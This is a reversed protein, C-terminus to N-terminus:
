NSNREYMTRWNTFNLVIRSLYILLPYSALFSQLSKITINQWYEPNEHRRQLEWGPLCDGGVLAPAIIGIMVAMITNNNASAYSPVPTIAHTSTSAPQIVTATLIPTNTSTAALDETPTETHVATPQVVGRLWVTREFEAPVVYRM